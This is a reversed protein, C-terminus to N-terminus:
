VRLGPLLGISSRIPAMTRVAAITTFKFAVIVMIGSDGTDFSVVTATAPNHIPNAIASAVVPM